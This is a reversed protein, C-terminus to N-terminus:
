SFRKDVENKMAQIEREIFAQDVGYRKWLSLYIPTLLRDAAQFDAILVRLEDSMQRRGHPHLFTAAHERFFHHTLYNRKRLVDELILDTQESFQMLSGTVTLLKGLTKKDLDYFTADFLDRTIVKARLQLVAALNLLSHEVLQATYMALGYFAYVEKPDDYNPEPIAPM